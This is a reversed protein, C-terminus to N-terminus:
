LKFNTAWMYGTGGTTANNFVRAAVVPGTTNYVEFPATVAPGWGLQRLKYGFGGGKVNSMLPCPPFWAKALSTDTLVDTPGVATQAWNGSPGFAFYLANNSLGANTRIHPSVSGANPKSTTYPAPSSTSGFAGVPIYASMGYAVDAADVLLDGAFLAPANTGSAPNESGVVVGEASDFYFQVLSAGYLSAVGLGAVKTCNTDNGLITGSSAALNSPTNVNGAPFWATYIANNTPAQDLIAANNGAPAGTWCVHMIRGASGDKRKMVLSYPASSDNVSAVEWKFNADGAKSTMLTNLDTFWSAATTNTKTGNGSNYWTLTASM